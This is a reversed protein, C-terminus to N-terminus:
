VTESVPAYWVSSPVAVPAVSVNGGSLATMRVFPYCADAFRLLRGGRFPAAQQRKKVRPRIPDIVTDPGDDGLGQSPLGAARGGHLV